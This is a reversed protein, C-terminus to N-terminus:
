KILQSINKFASHKSDKLLDFLITETNSVVAGKAQMLNLGNNHNEHTRSSMADNALHVQYGADRLDRVTQWVCVHTEMGAVVINVKGLEKLSEELAPTYASFSTKEIISHFERDNTIEKITAGLGQPYQETLIIPIELLEAAEILNQTNKIVEEQNQMAVVLRDQIDIILLVTNNEDVTFSQTM